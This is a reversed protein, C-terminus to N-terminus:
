EYDIFNFGINNENYELFSKNDGIFMFDYPETKIFPLLEPFYTEFTKKQATIYYSCSMDVIECNICMKNDEVFKYVEDITKNIIKDEDVGSYSGLYNHCINDSEVPTPHWDNCAFYVIEGKM